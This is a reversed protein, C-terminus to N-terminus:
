LPGMGMQQWMNARAQQNQLHPNFGFGMENLGSMNSSHPGQLNGGFPQLGMQQMQQFSGMGMPNGMGMPMGMGVGGMGMGMGMNNGMGTSNGMGMNSQSPQRAAMMEALIKQQYQHAMSERVEQQSPFRQNMPIEPAELPAQTPSGMSIMNEAAKREQYDAMVQKHRERDKEALDQYHKRKEPSLAKWRASVERALSVLGIKGHVKRHARKARTPFFTRNMVTPVEADDKENSQTPQLEGDTEEKAEIKRLIIERQESFFINYASLARRPMDNSKKARKRRKGPREDSEEDDDEKQKLEASPRKTRDQAKTPAKLDKGNMKLESIGQIKDAAITGGPNLMQMKQRARLLTMMDLDPVFQGGQGLYKSADEMAAAHIDGRQHMMAVSSGHLGGASGGVTAATSRMTNNNYTIDEGSSLTGHHNRMKSSKDVFPNNMFSMTNQSTALM